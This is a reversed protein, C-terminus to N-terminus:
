FKRGTSLLVKFAGNAAQHHSELRPLLVQRAFQHAHVECYACHSTTPRVASLLYRAPRSCGSIQCFVVTGDLAKITVTKTSM